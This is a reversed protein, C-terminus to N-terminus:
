KKARLTDSVSLFSLLSMFIYKVARLDWGLNYNKFIISFITELYLTM